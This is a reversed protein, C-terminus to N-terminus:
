GHEFVPLRAPKGLLDVIELRESDVQAELLDVEEPVGPAAIEHHRVGRAMGFVDRVQHDHVGGRGLDLVGHKEELVDVRLRGRALVPQREGDLQPVLFRDGGVEM